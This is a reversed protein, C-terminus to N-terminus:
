MDKELAEAETERGLTSYPSSKGLEHAMNAVDKASVTTTDSRTFLMIHRGDVSPRYYDYGISSATKGNGQEIHVADSRAGLADCLNDRGGIGNEPRIRLRSHMMAPGWMRIARLLVDNLDDYDEPRVWCYRVPQITVQQENKASDYILPWAAKEQHPYYGSAPVKTLSFWRRNTTARHVMVSDPCCSGFTNHMLLMLLLVASFLNSTM